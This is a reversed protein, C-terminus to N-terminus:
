VGGMAAEDHRRMGADVAKKIEAVFGKGVGL